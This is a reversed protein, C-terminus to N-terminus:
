KLYVKKLNQLGELVLRIDRMSVARGGDYTPAAHAILAILGKQSIPGALLKKVGEDIAKIQDAIITVEAGGELSKRVVIPPDKKASRM